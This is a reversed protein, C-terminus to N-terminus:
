YLFLGKHDSDEIAVQYRPKDISNYEIEEEQGIVTEIIDNVVYIRKAILPEAVEKKNGHHPRFRVNKNVSDVLIDPTILSVKHEQLLKSNLEKEMRTTTIRHLHM